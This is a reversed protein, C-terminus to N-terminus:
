GIRRAVRLGLAAAVLITPMGSAKPALSLDAVWLGEPLWSPRMSEADERTLPVTGGLHGGNLVGDVFPGTVGAGEMLSIAEERAGALRERDIDTLEKHVTGDADVSGKAVDALKIMMGVHDKAPRQRWPKHFFHALLDYYPSLMYHERKAFWVMPPEELMRADDKLGGVTLVLDVWLDDRTGIGSAKLVQATGIGGAALVVTDARLTEPSRGTGVQVGVARGDEILVRTVLAGTRLVGGNTVMEDVFTRSDWKADTACGLECLGCSVCKAVDVLKPTVQPEMGLDEAVRFMADSTPRWSERPVGTVGIAAELEGFEPSLDVGIEPLGNEGRALNGASITTTGGPALGWVLVM